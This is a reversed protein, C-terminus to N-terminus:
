NDIPLLDVQPYSDSAWVPFQIWKGARKMADSQVKATDSTNTTFHSYTDPDLYNQILALRALSNQPTNYVTRVASLSSTTCSQAVWTNVAGQLVVQQQRAIIRRSDHAANAMNAIVISALIGIVALVILLEVLSFGRRQEIL